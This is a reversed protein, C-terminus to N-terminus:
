DDLASRVYRNKKNDNKFDYFLEVHGCKECAYSRVTQDVYGETKVVQDDIIQIEKLKENGCLTCKM